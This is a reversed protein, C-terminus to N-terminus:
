GAKAIVEDKELRTQIEKVIGLLKAGPSTVCGVVNRAPALVLSVVRGQAEIRTPFKSLQEVGAKGEFYIGDLVAAKLEIEKSATALTVLERAIDVVSKDGYVLASSGSLAKGLPALPGTGFAHKALSNKLVTVRVGGQRFGTRMKNNATADFGRIEIVVGDSVGTFRKRYEAIIMDKVPKSM